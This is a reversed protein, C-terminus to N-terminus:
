NTGINQCLLLLTGKIESFNENFISYYKEVEVTM